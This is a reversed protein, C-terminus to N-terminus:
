VQLSGPAKLPIAAATGAWALPPLHMSSKRRGVLAGGAGSLHQGQGGSEQVPVSLLTGSKLLLLCDPHGWSPVLWSLPLGAWGLAGSDRTPPPVPRFLRTGDLALISSFHSSDCVTPMQQERWPLSLLPLQCGQGLQGGRGGRVRVLVAARGPQGRPSGRERGAATEAEV